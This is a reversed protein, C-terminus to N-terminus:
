ESLEMWDPNPTFGLKEYLARGMPTAHLVLRRIGLSEREALLTSVLLEGVGRRRASPEVWMTLVLGDWPRLDENRPPVPTLSVTVCGVPEGEEEALWTVASGNALTSEYFRRTGADFDAGWHGEPVGRVASVFCTRLRLLVELDLPAARRITIAM